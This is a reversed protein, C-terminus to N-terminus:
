IEADISGKFVFKAPGQLFVDTYTSGDLEFTVKLEGGLAEVNVEKADSVGTCHASLVAATVGTGCALTENEVGREYTRISLSNDDKLEIFNVNTGEKKFRENNRINRGNEVVDYESLDEVVKVYHPSGTDLYCFGEGQEIHNVDIMELSVWQQDKHMIISASHEGDVAIFKCSEKIIRQAFAFAVICRGGNGCMSGEKGDANFYVMEFDYDQSDRLLMLGDAGIGFKRDCLFKVLENNSVDFSAQRDDIIVFDNGAGQYKYFKIQM